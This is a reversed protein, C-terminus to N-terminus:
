RQLAGGPLAPGAEVGDVEEAARVRRVDGDVAGVALAKRHGTREVLDVGEVVALVCPEPLAIAVGHGVVHEGGVLGVGVLGVVM